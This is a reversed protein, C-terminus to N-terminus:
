FIATYGFHIKSNSFSYSEGNRKGLGYLIQFNGQDTSFEMGVGLGSPNDSYSGSLIEYALISQDYFAVLYSSSDLYYRWELNLLGYESAFFVLENFGRITRLGGLRYLDNLYLYDNFIIGGQGSLYLVSRKSIPKYFETFNQFSYQTSEPITLDNRITKRGVNGVIRSKLGKKPSLLNDLKYWTLSFSYTDIDFDGSGDLTEGLKNGLLNSYSLGIEVSRLPRYDFGLKLLRNSFLTDQRVQDLEFYFDLPTGLFIPHLYGAHLQQAGPELKKWNVEIKKGSQFVNNIALDLEGTIVAGEGDQGPVLGLLGNFRNVKRRVLDLHVQAKKLRFSTNMKELSIFPLHQIRSSVKAITEEDYVEGYDLNLYKSLFDTRVIGHPSITLSDYTIKPGQTLRLKVFLKDGYIKSSDLDMTAFPYGNLELYSLVSEIGEALEVPSSLHKDEMKLFKPIRQLTSNNEFQVEVSEFNRGQYFYIILSDAKSSTSDIGALWYGDSRLQSIIQKCTQQLLVTDFRTQKPIYSKELGDILVQLGSEGPDQGISVRNHGFILVFSTLLIKFVRYM